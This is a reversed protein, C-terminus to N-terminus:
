TLRSISSEQVKASRRLAFECPARVLWRSGSPGISDAVDPDPREDQNVNRRSADSVSQPVMPCGAVVYGIFEVVSNRRSLMGV